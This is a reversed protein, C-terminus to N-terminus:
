VVMSACCLFADTSFRCALNGYRNCLRCSGSRQIAYMWANGHHLLPNILQLLFRPTRQFLPHRQHLFFSRFLFLRPAISELGLMLHADAACPPIRRARFSLAPLFVRRLRVQLRRDAIHIFIRPVSLSALASKHLDALARRIAQRRHSPRDMCSSQAATYRVRTRM